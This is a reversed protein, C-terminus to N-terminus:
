SNISILGAVALRIRTADSATLLGDGDADAAQTQEATLEVLGIMALLLRTADSATLDGDGDM